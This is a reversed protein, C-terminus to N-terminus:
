SRWGCTSPTGPSLQPSVSGGGALVGVGRCGGHVGLGFGRCGGHVGLGFGQCGSHVGAGLGLWARVRCQAGWVGTVSSGPATCLPAGGPHAGGATSCGLAAALAAGGPGAAGVKGGSQDEGTITVPLWIGFTRKSSSTPRRCLTPPCRLAATCGSQHGCPAPPAAGCGGTGLWRLAAAGQAEQGAGRARAQAGTGLPPLHVGAAGQSCGQSRM